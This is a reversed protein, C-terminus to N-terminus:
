KRRSQRRRSIKKRSLKKSSKRKNSKKNYAKRRTRKATAPRRRRPGGHKDGEDGKRDEDHTQRKGEPVDDDYDSDDENLSRKSATSPVNDADPQLEMDDFPVSNVTVMSFPKSAATADEKDLKSLGELAEADIEAQQSSQEQGIEVIAADTSLIENANELPGLLLSANGCDVVIKAGPEATEQVAREQVARKEAAEIVGRVEGVASGLINQVLVAPEEAQEQAPAAQAPAAQAPVCRGM